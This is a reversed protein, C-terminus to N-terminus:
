GGGAPIDLTAVLYDSDVYGEDTYVREGREDCRMLYSNGRVFVWLSPPWNGALRRLACITRQEATTPEYKEMERAERHAGKSM